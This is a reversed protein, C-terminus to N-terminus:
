PSQDGSGRRAARDLAAYAKELVNEIAEVDVGGGELAPNTTEPVLGTPAANEAIYNLWRQRQAAQRVIGAEELKRLLRAAAQRTVGLTEAVYRPTLAHLTGL